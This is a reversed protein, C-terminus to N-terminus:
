VHSLVKKLEAYSTSAYVKVLAYGALVSVHGPAASMADFGIRLTFFALMAPLRVHLIDDIRKAHLRNNVINQLRDM